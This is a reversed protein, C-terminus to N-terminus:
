SLLVTDIVSKPAELWGLRIGPGFIKSFSGNSVIHGMDSFCTVYSFIVCILFTTKIFDWLVM